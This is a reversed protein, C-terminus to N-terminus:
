RRNWFNTRKLLNVFYNAREEDSLNPTYGFKIAMIMFEPETSFFIGQETGEPAVNIPDYDMVFEYPIGLLKKIIFRKLVISISGRFNHRLGLVHGVEHLTLNTIYQM